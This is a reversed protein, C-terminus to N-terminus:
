ALLQALDVGGRDLHNGCYALLRSLNVASKRRKYGRMTRYREKVWWGIARESANNTGDLKAEKEGQWTRYLTLRPWLNWRDLFLMRIRYALTARENKKPSRAKQYRRHIRGLEGQDEPRRTRMLEELRALDAAAQEPSVGIEALSGDADKEAAPKMEEILSETNRKVHSKCVQHAKGMEDVANKFADADDSVVVEAGVADLVPEMWAKLTKADEGELGDLTLVFGNIADVMLGLTLWEGNCRVSTLDGGVAPTKVGEFVQERKLGPVQEAVAQVTDYVRSKCLYVGLAELTLSVAGYSLGLLYLMVALGKVRQSTSAGTVGQPYVRFTRKCKLCEYRHATVETYTTDRLSKKVTQHHRFYKGDCGEYPCQEPVQYEDPTVQPLILHLRM